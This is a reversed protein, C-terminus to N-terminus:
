LLDQRTIRDTNPRINDQVLFFNEGIFPTFSVEHEEVYDKICIDITINGRRIIVLFTFANM